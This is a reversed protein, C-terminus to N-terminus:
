EVQDARRMISLDRGSSATACGRRRTHILCCRQRKLEKVAEEEEEDRGRRAPMAEPLPDNFGQIGCCTM